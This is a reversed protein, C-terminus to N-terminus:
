DTLSAEVPEGSNPRTNRSLVYMAGAGIVAGAVLAPARRKPKPAEVLGFAEAVVPGYIIALSALNRGAVGVRAMQARAKRKVVVVGVRWGLKAPPAAARRVMPHRVIAVAGKTGLRATTAKTPM